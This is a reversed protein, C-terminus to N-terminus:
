PWPREEKDPFGAAASAYRRPETTAGSAVSDDVAACLLHILTLHLEQVVPVGGPVAIAEDAHEHLPNPAPGTLAWVTLGARSGEAACRLLNPSRGSTSLLLLVDGSRALGRLTRAYAEEWGYDNAIATLSSTEASLAVACLPQRESRYRGVLEGTLHQAEAASGGNGAVCLRGGSLLVSTLHSGWREITSRWAPLHRVAALHDHIHEDWTAM